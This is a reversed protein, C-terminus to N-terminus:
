GYAGSNDRAQVDIGGSIRADETRTVAVVSTRTPEIGSSEGQAPLALGGLLTATARQLALLRISSPRAADLVLFEVGARFPMTGGSHASSRCVRIAEVDLGSSDTALLGVTGPALPVAMEVLCGNAGIERVTAPLSRVLAATVGPWTWWAM